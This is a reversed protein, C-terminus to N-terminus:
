AVNQLMDLVLLNYQSSVVDRALMFWTDLLLKLRDEHFKQTTKVSIFIDSLETQRSNSNKHELARRIREEPTEDRNEPTDLSDVPKDELGRKERYGSVKRSSGLAVRAQPGGEGGGMRDGGDQHGQQVIGQRANQGEHILVVYFLNMMLMCTFFFIVQLVKRLSFRM